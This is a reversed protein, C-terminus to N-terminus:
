VELTVERRYSADGEKAGKGEAARRLLRWIQPGMLDIETSTYHEGGFHHITDTQIALMEADQAFIRKAIPELVLKVVQGPLRMRFTVV